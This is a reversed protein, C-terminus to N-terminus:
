RVADFDNVMEAATPGKIAAELPFLSEGLAVAKLFRGKEWQGSLRFKIQKISGFSM